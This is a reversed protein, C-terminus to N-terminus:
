FIPKLAGICHNQTDFFIRLVIRIFQDQIITQSHKFSQTQSKTRRNQELLLIIRRYITGRGILLSQDQPLIRIAHLPQTRLVLSLSSICSVQIDRYKKTSFLLTWLTFSVKKREHTLLTNFTHQIGEKNSFTVKFFGSGVLTCTELIYHLMLIAWQALALQRPNISADYGIAIFQMM